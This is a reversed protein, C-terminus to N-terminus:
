STVVIYTGPAAEPLQGAGIANFRVLPGPMGGKPDEFILKTFLNFPLALYRRETDAMGLSSWNGRRPVIWQWGYADSIANGWLAGLAVAVDEGLPNEATGAALEDVFEQIAKVVEAPSEGGSLRLM